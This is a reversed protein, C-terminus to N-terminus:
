SDLTLLSANGGQATTNITLTKEHVFRMLYHPGGAKPGTGSLGQGGFPQVGVMAGIMSRNVYMNGVNLKRALDQARGEIRSHLGFTLGFGLANIEQIVKDLDQSRYRVVHLIPGFHETHLFSISPIEYVCPVVYGGNQAEQSLPTKTIFTAEKDLVCIHELLTKQAAKDIVPGIDTELLAPNGIQIEQMAGALMELVSDAIENQLVLLRLASCRQGASQFASTIVDTVVQEPLATSDVIMVNQGGTEAIFPVIPGRRQALIQNITWATETSGTFCIGAIRNDPVLVKGVLAGSGPILALVDAPIGAQLMLEVAKTAILLMQGAPKALVTNGTVLAAAVQGTFIALPFNWPSICLFVGRGSLSLRNEEGTPGPLLIDAAMKTRAQTAYYRCFDIAERVESVADPITKGGEFVCLSMLELANDDFLQAIRELCQARTEVSTESWSKCAAVTISLAAELEERGIRQGTGSRIDRYKEKKLENLFPALAEGSSLDLGRSNLRDSLLDKPLPIKLHAFQELAQTIELPDAVLDEAPIKPNNIANVFSSNAGNELLRRVLYSVLDKHIGVPAYIRIRLHPNEALLQQYLTEGMGYLCQFEFDTIAKRHAFEFISAITHANHTAFQPYFVDPNELMKQACVLYSLDTTSKRTFVPYDELGLEQAMKIESDWYAGKVLRVPFRRGSKLSLDALWELVYPARKQYAQVALGLGDWGKLEPDLALHEFIELSLELRRAEEADITLQVGAEQAALALTKAIPILEELVRRRQNYEYRPHLASLKISIGSKLPDSTAEFTGLTQIANLYAQFYKQADQATLATEGLMDFSHCFGKKKNVAAKKLAEKMTQGMVFQDALLTVLTRATKIVLPQSLSQLSAKLPQLFASDSKGLFRTAFTLLHEMLKDSINQSGQERRRFDVHHMKDQILAYATATDPVRILAEALSMLVIGERSALDYRALMKDLTSAQDQASRVQRVLALAHERIRERAEPTLLLQHLLAKVAQDEPTRYFPTLVSLDM